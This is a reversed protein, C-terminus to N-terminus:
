SVFPMFVYKISDDDVSRILLPTNSDMIQIRVLSSSIKELIDMLLKFNCVIDLKETQSYTADIKGNATNGNDELSIEVANSTIEMKIRFTIESMSSVQKITDKIDEVKVELIKDNSTPIVSQYKPFSTDLLKSTYLISGTSIQIMNDTYNIDIEGSMEGLATLIYDASKKPVMLNPVESDYNAKREAIGLRMGDTAVINLTNTKEKDTHFMVCNLHQKASDICCSVASIASKLDQASITFTKSNDFVPAEFIEEKTELTSLQYNFSGAIISLINNNLEFNMDKSKNQKVVRALIEGSVVFSGETKIDGDFAISVYSEGNTAKVNIKQEKISFLIRPFSDIGGKLIPEIQAIVKKLENTGISFSAM